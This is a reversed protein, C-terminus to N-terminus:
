CRGSDNGACHLFLLMCGLEHPLINPHFVDAPQRCSRAGEAATCRLLLLLLVKLLLLLLLLLPPVGAPHQAQQYAQRLLMVVLRQQGQYTHKPHAEVHQLHAEHKRHV